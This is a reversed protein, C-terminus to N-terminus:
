ARRRPIYSNGDKDKPPEPWKTVRRKPKPKEKEGPLKMREREWATVASEYAALPKELHLMQKIYKRATVDTVHYREMIDPVFLLREM